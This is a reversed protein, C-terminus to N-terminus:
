RASPDPVQCPASPRRSRAPTARSRSASRCAPRCPSRGTRPTVSTWATLSAAIRGQPRAGRDGDAPRRGRVLRRRDVRRWRRVDRDHRWLEPRALRQGAGRVAGSQTPFPDGHTGGSGVGCTGFGPAFGVAFWGGMLLGFTAAVVLGGLFAAKTRQLILGLGIGILILPWLQWFNRVVDANVLGSQVALPVAGAVIFFVGWGLLGRNVHVLNVEPGVAHGMSMISGGPRRQRPDITATM